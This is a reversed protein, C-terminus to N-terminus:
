KIPFVKRKGSEDTGTCSPPPLFTAGKLAALTKNLINEIDYSYPPRCQERYGVDTNQSPDVLSKVDGVNRRYTVQDDWPHYEIIEENKSFLWGPIDIAPAEGPKIRITPRDAVSDLTIIISLDANHYEGPKLTKVLEFLEHVM